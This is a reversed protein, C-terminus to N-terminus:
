PWIPSFKRLSISALGSVFRRGKNQPEVLFSTNRTEVHVTYVACLAVRGRSRGVMSYGVQGVMGSGQWSGQRQVGHRVQWRCLVLCAFVIRWIFYLYFFSGFHRSHSNLGRCTLSEDCDFWFVSWKTEWDRDQHTWQCCFFLTQLEFEIGWSAYSSSWFLLSFSLFTM